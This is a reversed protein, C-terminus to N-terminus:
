PGLQTCSQLFTRQHAVADEITTQTDGCFTCTFTEMDTYEFFASLVSVGRIGLSDVFAFPNDLSGITPEQNTQLYARLLEALQDREDQQSRGPTHVVPPAQVPFPARSILPAPVGSFQNETLKAAFAFSPPLSLTQTTLPTTTSGITSSPHVTVRTPHGSGIPLPDVLPTQLPSHVADLTLTSTFSDLDV